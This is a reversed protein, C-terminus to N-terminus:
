EQEREDWRAVLIDTFEDLAQEEQLLALTASQRRKSLAKRAFMPLAFFQPAGINTAEVAQLADLYRRAAEPQERVYSRIGVHNTGTKGSPDEGLLVRIAHVLSENENM